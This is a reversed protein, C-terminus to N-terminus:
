IHSKVWDYIVSELWAVRGRPSDSLRIRPPFTGAKERRAIEAFSLTTIERVQKRTLLREIQRM